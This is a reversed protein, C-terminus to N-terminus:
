GSTLLMIHLSDNKEKEYINNGPYVVGYVEKGESLLKKVLNHGIFGDAGTVLVKQM